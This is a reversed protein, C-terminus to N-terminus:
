ALWRMSLIAFGWAKISLPNLKLTRLWYEKAHASKQDHLVKALFYTTDFRQDQSIAEDAQGRHYHNPRYRKAQELITQDSDGNVCLVNAKVILKKLASQQKNYRGSIGQVSFIARTLVRELMAFDCHRLMRSWLDADQAFYFEARYGGVERYISKRFMTSAHFPTKFNAIDTARLAQNIQESTDDITYLYYGEETEMRVWSAVLGLSADLSLMKAQASLRGALMIDGADIRAILPHIASDCAKILAKTLGLHDQLIVKLRDDSINELMALVDPQAGDSVVLLECEVGQQALVSDITLRVAKANDYVSM